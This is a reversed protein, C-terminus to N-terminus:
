TKSYGRYYLCAPYAGHDMGFELILKDLADTTVGPKVHEALLDLAEATLRGPRRMGEFGEPGHLPIDPARRRATTETDTMATGIRDLHLSQRAPPLRHTAPESAIAARSHWYCGGNQRM